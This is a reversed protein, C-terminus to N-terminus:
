SPRSEEGSTANNYGWKAIYYADVIDTVPSDLKATKSYYQIVNLNTESVFAEYMKAKDANGKGTAYKKIVTPPITEFQIGNEWLLHKLCGTNEAIHFVRGKSGFSYDEIFVKKVGSPIKHVFYMAINYYREQESLYERHLQGNFNLVKGECKKHQTLFYFDCNEVGPERMVCMAPCSLSYDIGVTVM